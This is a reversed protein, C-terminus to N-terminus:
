DNRSHPTFIAIAKKLILNEEELMANRKQLERIQKATLVTDEDIKVESYMKIWKTLASTSVGYEKSLATQTKGSHHLNVLSQKFEEDYKRYTGM